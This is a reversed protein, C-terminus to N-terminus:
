EGELKPFVWSFISNHLQVIIDPKMFFIHTKLGDFGPEKRYWIKGIIEGINVEGIGENAVGWILRYIM